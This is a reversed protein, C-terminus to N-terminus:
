TPTPSDPSVEFKAELPQGESATRFHLKLGAFARVLAYTVTGSLSGFVLNSILSPVVFLFVERRAGVMLALVAETVVNGAAAISGLVAYIWIRQPLRRFLPWLLDMLLGPAIPRLVEVVGYRGEGNAFGVLGAVTGVTTGGLPSKTLHAALGYLPVAVMSKLGSVFPLGPLIKLFRLSMMLAALSSILTVDNLLRQDTCQSADFVRERRVSARDIGAQIMEVLGSVDGKALRAAVDAFSPGAGTSGYPPKGDATGQRGGGDGRLGSLLALTNDMSYLLLRPSRLRLLADVLEAESCSLRVVASALIVTLIQGCMVAGMGLGTLDFRIGVGPSGLRAVRDGPAGPLLVYCALLFILFLRPRSVIAGLDRGSIRMARLLGVQLVLLGAVVWPRAPWPTALAAIAVALLYVPRARPDIRRRAPDPPAADPNTM